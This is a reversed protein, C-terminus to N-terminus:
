HKIVKKRKEDTLIILQTFARTWADGENKSIKDGVMSMLKQIDAVSITNVSDPLYTVSDKKQSYLQTSIFITIALLLKKM